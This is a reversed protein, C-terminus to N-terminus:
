IGETRNLKESQFQQRNRLAASMLKTMGLRVVQEWVARFMM